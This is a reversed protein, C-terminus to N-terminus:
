LSREEARRSRRVAAAVPILLLPAVVFWALWVLSHDGTLTRYLYYNAATLAWAIVAALAALWTSESREAAIAIRAATRAALFPPTPPAPLRGLASSLRALEEARASCEACEHLHWKVTREEDPTLLGAASLALLEAVKEHATM